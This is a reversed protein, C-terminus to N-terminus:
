THPDPDDAAGKWLDALAALLSEFVSLNLHYTISTGHREGYVLDADKLQALHHSLTPKSLAFEAALEGATMPRKRLLALIRRRSPDAIAKFVDNV